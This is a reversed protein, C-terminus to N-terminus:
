SLYVTRSRTDQLEFCPEQFREYGTLAYSIVKSLIYKYKSQHM